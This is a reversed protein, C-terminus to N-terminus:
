LTIQWSQLSKGYNKLEGLKPVVSKGWENKDIVLLPVKQLNVHSPYTLWTKIVCQYKRLSWPLFIHHPISQQVVSSLGGEILAAVCTKWCQKYAGDGDKLHPNFLRPAWSLKPTRIFSSLSDVQLYPRKCLDQTLLVHNGMASTGSKVTELSSSHHQSHVAEVSTGSWGSQPKSKNCYTHTRQKIWILLLFGQVCQLGLPTPSWFVAGLRM